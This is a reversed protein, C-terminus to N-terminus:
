GGQLYNVVLVSQDPYLCVTAHGSGASDSGENVYADLEDSTLAAGPPLEGRLEQKINPTEKRASSGIQGEFERAVKPDLRIVADIWYRQDQNPIERGTNFGYLGGAWTATYGDGLHGLRRKLPDLDHRIKGDWQKERDDSPAAESHSVPFEERFLSCGAGTVVLLVAVLALPLRNM